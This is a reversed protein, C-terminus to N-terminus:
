VETTLCFPITRYVFLSYFLVNFSICEGSSSRRVVIGTPSIASATTKRPCIKSYVSRSTTTCGVLSRSFIAPNELIEYIVKFSLKLYMKGFFIFTRSFRSVLCESPIYNGLPEHLDHVGYMQSRLGHGLFQSMKLINKCLLFEVPLSYFSYM